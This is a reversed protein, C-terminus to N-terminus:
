QDMAKWIGVILFLRLVVNLVVNVLWYYEFSSPDEQYLQNSSLFLVITGCYYLLLGTVFYFDPVKSFSELKAKAFSARFWLISFLSVFITQFADMFSSLELFDNADWKLVVGLLIMMFFVFAAQIYRRHLGNLLNTFYYSIALYAFVNYVIIWYTAPVKLIIIFVLEYVSAWFSLLLFPLISSVDKRIGKKLIRYALYPFLGSIIAIITIYLM